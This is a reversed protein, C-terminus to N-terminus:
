MGTHTLARQLAAMVIGLLTRKLQDTISLQVRSSHGSVLWMCIEGFDLFERSLNLNKLLPKLAM